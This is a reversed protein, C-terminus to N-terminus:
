SMPIGLRIAARAIMIEEDTHALFAILSPDLDDSRTGMILGSAPTFGMTTDLCQGGRVAALSAGSGLHALVIQQSAEAPGATRDLNETLYVYSLGHFGYRRVGLGWYRRPIPIIQALRPMTHHFATDFCAVQPVGHVVSQGVAAISAFGLRREVREIALEATVALNPAEVARDECRCGSVDNDVLRSEGLGVREVQDSFIRESPDAATFVAFRLISSDGNITLIHSRRSGGARLPGETPGLPHTQVVEDSM